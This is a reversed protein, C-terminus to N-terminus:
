NIIDLAIIGCKVKYTLFPFYMYYTIIFFSTDILESIFPELRKLQDEMFAERKFGIFYDPQLYTKTM